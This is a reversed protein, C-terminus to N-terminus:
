ELIKIETRRNLQHEDPTCKVGNACKNVLQTEGYGKATIRDKNIGKSIIYNVASRARRQSLDLNYIDPGRSDTHSGLEVKMEPYEKLIAVLKNLELAADPRINDKDFDYYINQVKFSKNVPILSLFFDKDISKDSTTFTTDRENFLTKQAKLNYNSNEQLPFKYYGTENTTINKELGDAGTIKVQANNLPKRTREDYVIGKVYINQLVPVIAENFSYIDDSGKGKMRNSSFYGSWAGTLKEVSFAFDDQPTNYPYGMNQIQWTGNRHVAKYIDLDGMGIRGDASFYLVDESLFYPTREDGSTNLAEINEPKSWTGDNNRITKYIDLGGKGGPMDSVFYLTKGDEMLFPDGVSYANINNYPFAVPKTWTGDDQMRASYIEVNVTGIRLKTKDFTLDKAVRTLSFFVEKADKSFTPMGIHYDTETNLPFASIQHDKDAYLLKLYNEGTWSYYNRDPYNGKDFRLISKKSKQTYNDPFVRDSVFVLGDKYKVAGYETYNTNITSINEINVKKPNAMWLLASDCSKLWLDQNAKPINGAKQIYQQYTAKAETYKSNNQLAKAYALLLDTGADPFTLAKAYWKETEEYEKNKESSIALQKATYLTEKKKFAQEYLTKAKAYQYLKFQKDAQNLIYQGKSVLTLSMLFAIYIYKMKKM